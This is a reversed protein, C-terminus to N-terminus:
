LRSSSASTWTGRASTSSCTAPRRSPMARDPVSREFHICSRPRGPGFLLDWVNAGFGMVCSLTGEPNRFGVTRVLGSLDACFSKVTTLNETGPNVTVVLFIAARTLTAVVPQPVPQRTDVPAFGSM